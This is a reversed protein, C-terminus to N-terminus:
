VDVSLELPPARSSRSGPHEQAAPLRPPLVLTPPPPLPPSPAPGRSPAREGSEQARPRARRATPRPRRAVRVGCTVRGLLRTRQRRSLLPPPLRARAQSPERSLCQPSLFPPSSLRAFLARCGRSLRRRGRGEAHEALRPNEERGHASAAGAAAPLRSM